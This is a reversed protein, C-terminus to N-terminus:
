VKAGENVGFTNEVVCVGLSVGVGIGPHLTTRNARRSQSCSTAPEFGAVGVSIVLGKCKYTFAKKNEIACM